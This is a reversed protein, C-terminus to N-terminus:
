LSSWALILLLFYCFASVFIYLVNICISSLWIFYSFYIFQLWMIFILYVNFKSVFTGRKSTWQVTFWNLTNCNNQQNINWVKLRVIYTHVCDLQFMQKRQKPALTSGVGPINYVGNPSVSQLSHLCGPLTAGQIWVSGHRQLVAAGFTYIHVKQARGESVNPKGDPTQNQWHLQVWSRGPPCSTLNLTRGIKTHIEEAAEHERKRRIWREQQQWLRIGM